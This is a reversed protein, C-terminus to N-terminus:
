NGNNMEEKYKRKLFWRNKKFYEDASECTPEKIQWARCEENYKFWMENIWQRFSM